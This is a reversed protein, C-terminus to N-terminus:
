LIFDSSPRSSFYLYFLLVLLVFIDTSSHRSKMHKENKIHADMINIPLQLQQWCGPSATLGSKQSLTFVQVRDQQKLGQIQKLLGSLWDSVDPKNMQVHPLHPAAWHKTQFTTNFSTKKSMTHDCRIICVGASLSPCDQLERIRSSPKIWTHGPCSCHTLYSLRWLTKATFQLLFKETSTLMSTESLGAAWCRHADGAAFLDKNKLTKVTIFSLYPFGHQLRRYTVLNQSKNSPPQLSSFSNSPESQGKTELHNQHCPNKECSSFSMEVYETKQWSCSSLSSILKM